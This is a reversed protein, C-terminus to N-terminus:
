RQGETCITAILSKVQSNFRNAIFLDAKMMQGHAGLTASLVSNLPTVNCPNYHIRLPSYHSTFVRSKSQKEAFIHMYKFHKKTRKNQKLKNGEISVKWWSM